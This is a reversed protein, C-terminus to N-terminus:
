RCRWQSGFYIWHWWGARNFLQPSFCFDPVRGTSSIKWLANKEWSLLKESCQKSYIYLRLAKQRRVCSIIPYMTYRLDAKCDEWLLQKKAQCHGSYASILRSMSLPYKNPFPGKQGRKYSWSHPEQYPSWWNGPGAHLNLHSCSTCENTFSEGFINMLIDFWTAGLSALGGHLWRLARQFLTYHSSLQTELRGRPLVGFLLMQLSKSWPQFHWLVIAAWAASCTKSLKVAQCSLWYGDHATWGVNGRKTENLWLSKETDHQRQTQMTVQKQCINLWGNVVTTLCNPDVEKVNNFCLIVITTSSAIHLEMLCKQWLHNLLWWHQQRSIRM